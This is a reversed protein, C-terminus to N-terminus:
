PRFSSWLSRVRKVFSRCLYGASCCGATSCPLSSPPGAKRRESHHPAHGRCQSVHSASARRAACPTPTRRGRGRGEERGVLSPPPESAREGNRGKARSELVVPRSELRAADLACWLRINHVHLKLARQAVSRQRRPRQPERELGNQPNLRPM